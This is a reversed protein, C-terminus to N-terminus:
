VGRGPYEISKFGMASTARQLLQILSTVGVGLGLNLKSEMACSTLHKVSDCKFSVFDQRSHRKLSDAFFKVAMRHSCGRNNFEELLCQPQPTKGENPYFDVHGIAESMGFRSGIFDMYDGN